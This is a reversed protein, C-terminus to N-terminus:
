EVREVTVKFKLDADSYIGELGLQKATLYLKSDHEMVSYCGYEDVVFEDISRGELTLVAPANTSFDIRSVHAIFEAM